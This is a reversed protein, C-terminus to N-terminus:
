LIFVWILLLNHHMEQTAVGGLEGYSCRALCLSVSSSGSWVSSRLSTNILSLNSSSTVKNNKTRDCYHETTEMLFLSKKGGERRKLLLNKWSGTFIFACLCVRSKELPNKETLSYLNWCHAQILFSCICSPLFSMCWFNGKKKNFSTKKKVFFFGLPSIKCCYTSHVTLEHQM